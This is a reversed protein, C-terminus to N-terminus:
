NLSTGLIGFNKNKFDLLKQSPYGLICFCAWSESLIVAANPGKSPGEWWRDARKHLGLIAVATGEERYLWWWRRSSQTVVM